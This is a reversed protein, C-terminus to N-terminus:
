NWHGGPHVSTNMAYQMANFYGVESYLPAYDHGGVHPDNSGIIVPIEPRVAHMARQCLDYFKAFIAAPVGMNYPGFKMQENGCQVADAGGQAADNLYKTDYLRTGSSWQCISLMVRVGMSHFKAITTKLGTGSPGSSICTVYSVRVWPLDTFPHIADAVVGLIRASSVTPPYTPTPDPTPTPTFTPTPTPTPTHKPTPTPKVATAGFVCATLLMSLLTVFALITMSKKQVHGQVKM